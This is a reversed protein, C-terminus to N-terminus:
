SERTADRGEGEWSGHCLPSWTRLWPRDFYFGCVIFALPLSLFGFLYFSWEGKLAIRMHEVVLPLGARM